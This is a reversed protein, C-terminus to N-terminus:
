TRSRCAAPPAVRQPAGGVRTGQQATQRAARCPLAGRTFQFLAVHSSNHLRCVRERAPRLRSSLARRYLAHFRARTENISSLAGTDGSSLMSHTCHDHHSVIVFAVPAHTARPPVPPAACGM